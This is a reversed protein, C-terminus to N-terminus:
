SIVVEALPSKLGSAIMIDESAVMDSESRSLFIHLQPPSTCLDGGGYAVQRNLPNLFFLIKSSKRAARKNSDSEAALTVKGVSKEGPSNPFSV